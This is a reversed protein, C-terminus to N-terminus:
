VNRSPDKPASRESIIKKTWYGGAAGAAGIAAVKGYHEGLFSGTTKAGEIASTGLKEAVGTIGLTAAATEKTIEIGPAPTAITTIVPPTGTLSKLDDPKVGDGVVKALHDRVQEGSTAVASGATTSIKGLADSIEPSFAAYGLIAGTVIAAGALVKGWGIGGSDSKRDEEQQETAM